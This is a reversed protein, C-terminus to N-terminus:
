RPYIGFAAGGPGTVGPTTYASPNNWRGGGTSWEVTDSPLGPTAPNVFAGSAVASIFDSAPCMKSAEWWDRSEIAARCAGANTVPLGVIGGIGEVAGQVVGDAASVLAGGVDRGASNWGGDRYMRWAVFGLVAVGALALYGTVNRM